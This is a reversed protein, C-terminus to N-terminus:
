KEILLGQYGCPIVAKMTGNYDVFICPEPNGTTDESYTVSPSGINSVNIKHIKKNLHNTLILANNGDWRPLGNQGLSVTQSISSAGSEVVYANNGNTILANGDRFNTVGNTISCKIGSILSGKEAADPSSLDMWILGDRTAYPLRNSGCVQEPIYRMYNLNKTVSNRYSFTPATETGGVAIFQFGGYRSASVLYDDNPATVWCSFRHLPDTSLDESINCIRRIIPGNAVTKGNGTGLTLRYVGVGKEGEAVYLRNGKIAVGGAFSVSPIDSGHYDNPSYTAATVNTTTTQNWWSGSTTTTWSPVVIKLGADGCAVFLFGEWYAAGRVAGRSANNGESWPKWAVYRSSSTTYNYRAIYNSPLTGRDRTSPTAKSCKIAQLGLNSTAIYVVGEGLAISNVSNGGTVPDDNVTYHELISPNAKDTIDVVYMGGYVDGCFLTTNDQSPRNLWWDAGSKYFADFNQRSVFSPNEPDTVDWIEVGHGEGDNSDTGPNQKNHGTSVYMYNGSVWVGDGYGQLAIKNVQTINSLDRADFVTVHGGSWEGSFLYGNHYFVSQSEDTKIMRIHQPNSKDHVDIFEVGNQRQGVFMANGAVDLGTAFEVTDYRKTLTITGKNKLSALSFIWTGSERATVYLVNNYVMMQRPNGLLSGSGILKPQMPTTVDYAEVTGSYGVYLRKNESDMFLSTVSSGKPLVQLVQGLVKSGAAPKSSPLNGCDTYKGRVVVVDRSTTLNFPDGSEPTVTITFGTYTGAPLIAFLTGGEYHDTRYYMNVTLDKSGNSVITTVPDDGTYDIQINGTLNENAHFKVSQIGDSVKFRIFGCVSRLAEDGKKMIAINTHFAFTNTTGIQQTAPIALTSGTFVDRLGFDVGKTYDWEIYGSDGETVSENGTPGGPTQTLASEDTEKSNKGTWLVYEIESGATITGTFTRTESAGSEASTFKNKNMQSDFVYIANDGTSWWIKTGGSLHTKTDDPFSQEFGATISIPESQEVVPADQEVEPAEEQQCAILTIAAITLGTLLYRKM